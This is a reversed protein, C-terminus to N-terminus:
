TGCDHAPSNLIILLHECGISNEAENSANPLKDPAETYEFPKLGPRPKLQMPSNEAAWRIANEVLAVFSPNSWTRQDHGWATYFVRGKGAERVWTYPENGQEDRREALVIRNTNHKTHVYTEDWSEIPSIGQMIPHSTNVITEKFVGTGHKQFQAGVLEIYKPSNLFCYSACHLPVLGGGHEVFEIMAREQEPAIRTHNAYIVLADYGALKAPNLDELKETYELEIGKKLLVPQLQKFRDAPRHHGSDGLFLVRLTPGAAVAHTASLSVCATLLCILRLARGAVDLYKM